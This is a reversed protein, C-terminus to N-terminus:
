TRFQNIIKSVFYLAGGARAEPLVESRKARASGSPLARRDTSSVVGFTITSKSDHGWEIAPVRNM